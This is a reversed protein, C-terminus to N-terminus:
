AGAKASDRTAIKAAEELGKKILDSLEATPSVVDKGFGVTQSDFFDGFFDITKGDREGVLFAQM